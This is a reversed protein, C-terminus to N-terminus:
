LCMIFIHVQSQTIVRVIKQFIIMHQVKGNKAKMVLHFASNSDAVGTLPIAPNKRFQECIILVYQLHAGSKTFHSQCNKPFNDHTSSQWKKAKM